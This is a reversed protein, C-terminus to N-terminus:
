QGSETAATPQERQFERAHEKELWRSFMKPWERKPSLKLYARPDPNGHDPLMCVPSHIFSVPVLHFRRQRQGAYIKTEKLFPQLIQSLKREQVDPNPDSSEIIAYIGPDHFSEEPINQLDVFIWIQGPLIVGNGWNIMAWDRWPMGRYHPSGRYIQDFRKHETFLDLSISSTETGAIVLDALDQLFAELEKGLQFKDRSKM